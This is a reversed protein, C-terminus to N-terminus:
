QKFSGDRYPDISYTWTGDLSTAPRLDAATLLPAPGTPQAQAQSLACWMVAGFAFGTWLRM